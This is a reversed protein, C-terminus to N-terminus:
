TNEISEKGDYPDIEFFFTCVHLNVLGFIVDYNNRKYRTLWRKLNQSAEKSRKM